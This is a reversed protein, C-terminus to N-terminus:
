ARLEPRGGAPQQQGADAAAHGARRDLPPSEGPAESRNLGQRPQPVRRNAHRDRDQRRDRRVAPVSIEFGTPQHTAPKLVKGSTDGKVAPETYTSRACWLQHATGGLHRPRRLLHVECPMGDDLYHLADGMNEAEVEFQNYEADMFVYMPDAFYSYTCEKKDLIIQDIKDDAKFVVRHRLRDAPEEAEHKM